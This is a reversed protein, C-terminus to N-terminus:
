QLIVDRHFELFDKQKPKFTNIGDVGIENELPSVALYRGRLPDYPDPANCPIRIVEGENLIKEQEFISSFPVAWQALVALAFVGLSVNRM